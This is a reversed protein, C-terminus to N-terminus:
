RWRSAGRHRAEDSRGPEASGRPAISLCPSFAPWSRRASYPHFGSSWAGYARQEGVKSDEIGNSIVLDPVM